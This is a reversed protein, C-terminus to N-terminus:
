TNMFISTFNNQELIASKAGFEITNLLVFSGYLMAGPEGGTANNKNLRNRRNQRNRSRL